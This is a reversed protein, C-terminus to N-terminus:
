AALETLLEELRRVEMAAGLRELRDKAARALEAAEDDRKQRHLLRALDREAQALLLPRHLTTARSIVDRLLAEAQAPQGLAAMVGALVRSDEAEGVVNGLERHLALARQVELRAVEGDGMQLRIEARGGQIQAVLAQDGAASAEQLAREESELAKALDGQDRYAIALNHLTEAVGIRHGAQQFAALAMTFSGIAKGFQGRLSAIIGLNNSCRGVTARDGEREAAALARTFCSAAEDIWGEEFAINGAVTLSRLEIAADGRTRAAEGARAVWQRGSSYRGLRAQAIGFLLALTPSQELEQVPLAGLQEAVAAHRGSEALKQVVSLMELTTRGSMM